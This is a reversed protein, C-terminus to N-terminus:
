KKIWRMITLYLENADIPKTIHDNMGSELSKEKDGVMAHATMAIIPLFEFRPNKRIKATASLGDLEPMQIDMLVVDYDNQEVLDIAELGNNAIDVIVGQEELLEQAIMQNMENDEALLVRVGKLSTFDPSQSLNNTNNIQNNSELSFVSLISHSLLSGDLNKDIFGTIGLYPLLELKAQESETAMMLMKPVNGVFREQLFELTKVVEKLSGDSNIVILDCSINKNIQLLNTLEEFNSVRSVVCGLTQLIDSLEDQKALNDCFLLVNVGSLKIADKEMPVDFTASFFFASGKGEVSECHIVGGMMEVLKKSIILGLGTGGYKRTTSTDAQTFASFLRSIQEQSMGIGTDRVSFFLEIKNDIHNKLAVSLSVSGEETFKLANSVLNLLIQHLRLPDGFLIPPIDKEALLNFELGKERAKDLVIASIGNLVDGLSFDISEMELKGAEIKSFDLIDNLIRLLSKAADRLREVYIRQKENLETLLTLQAMGLIANMPTRIEHSMNALFDSKARTSEEAADRALRLQEEKKRIETVDILWVMVAREEYYNAYFVNALMKKVTCNKSKISIPSWRQMNGETINHMLEVGEESSLCYDEFLDGIQMGLFQMTFPTVFRVNNNVLIALCVPSSDLVQKLLMREKDLEAQAAKLERLDRTYGVVIFADRWNVRVLIIESPIQEGNLKQHMWEFRQYGESFAATIYKVAKEQSSIGDPQFEPSLEFFRQLYEHKNKLGFLKVAEQNCDINNFDKDWFNACVPATDLMIRGREAAENVDTIDQVTEVYGAQFGNPDHILAVQGKLFKKLLPHYLTFSKQGAGLERINEKEYGYLSSGFRENSLGIAEESKKNPLDEVAKPNLYLCKHGLDVISVPFPIGDLVSKYWLMKKTTLLLAQDILAVLKRLGKEEKKEERFFTTLSSLGSSNYVLPALSNIQQIHKNLKNVSNNFIVEQEKCIEDVGGSGSVESVGLAGTIESVESKPKNNLCKLESSCPTTDKIIGVVVTEKKSRSVSGSFSLERWKQLNKDFARFVCFFSLNSSNSVLEELSKRVKEQDDQHCTSAIYEYFDFAAEKNDRCLVSFDGFSPILVAKTEIINLKVLVSQSQQLMPNLLLLWQETEDIPRKKASNM